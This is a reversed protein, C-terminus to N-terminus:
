VDGNNAAGPGKRNFTPMSSMLKSEDVLSEPTPLKETRIEEEKWTGELDDELDPSASQL